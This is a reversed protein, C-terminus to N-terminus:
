SKPRLQPVMRLKSTDYGQARLRELIGSYVDPAISKERAMIWVLSRDHYGIVTWSYDEALDIVPYDVRLFWFVRVRWLANSVTDKVKATQPLRKEPGDFGGERYSFLIDITGDPKLDYREVSAYSDRELRNEIHSIVYWTGMFRPLDVQPVTKLPPLSSGGAVATAVGLLSFLSM